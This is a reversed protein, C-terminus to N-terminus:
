CNSVCYCRAPFDACYGGFNESSEEKCTKVCSPHDLCFGHYNRSLHSCRGATVVSMEAAMIVLLLLAATALSLSKRSAAM